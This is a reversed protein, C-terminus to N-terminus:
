ETSNWHFLCKWQRAFTSALRLIQVNDRDQGTRTRCAVSEYSHLTNWKDSMYCQWPHLWQGAWQMPITLQYQNNIWGKALCATRQPGNMQKSSCSRSSCTYSIKQYYMQPNMTDYRVRWTYSIHYRKYIIDKPLVNSSENYWIQSKMHRDSIFFSQARVDSGRMLHVTRLPCSTESLSLLVISKWNSCCRNEM